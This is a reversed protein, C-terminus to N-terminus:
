MRKKVKLYIGLVIFIAFSVGILIAMPVAFFQTTRTLVPGNESLSVSVKAKYFGLLFKETWLVAPTRLKLTKLSNSLISSETAEDAHILYRQSDALIVQSLIPLRAIEQGFMNTVKITGEPTTYHKSSNKVLLTFSVPGKTLFFPASFEEISGQTEGKPGISLLVNTGIGSPVQIGAFQDDKKGKAIFLISFYYDGLGTDKDIGVHLTLDKTEKSELHVTNIRREGDTIQIKQFILADFEPLRNTFVIQGDNEKSAQFPQFIIDLEAAEESMNELTIPTTLSAPPKVQLEIIPPYIGLSFESALVGSHFMSFLFIISLLVTLAKRM